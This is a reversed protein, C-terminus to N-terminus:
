GIMVGYKRQLITGNFLYFDPKTTKLIINGYTDNKKSSTHFIFELIIGMIIGQKTGQSQTQAHGKVKIFLVYCHYDSACMQTCM